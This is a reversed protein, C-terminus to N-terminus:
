RQPHTLIDPHGKDNGDKIWAVAWLMFEILLIGFLENWGIWNEQISAREVCYLTSKTGTESTTEFFSFSSKGSAERIKRHIISLKTKDPSLKANGFAIIKFM